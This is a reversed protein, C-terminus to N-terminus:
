PRHREDAAARSLHDRGQRSDENPGRHISQSGVGCVNNKDMQQQQIDRCGCGVVVLLLLVVAAVPLLLLLLLSHRGQPLLM